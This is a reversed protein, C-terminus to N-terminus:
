DLANELALGDVRWRHQADLVLDVSQLPRLREGAKLREDRPGVGIRLRDGFPDFAGWPDIKEGPDGLGARVGADAQLYDIRRDGRKGGVTLGSECLRQRRKELLLLDRKVDPRIAVRRDAQPDPAARCDFGGIDLRQSM